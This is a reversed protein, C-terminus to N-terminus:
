QVEWAHTCNLGKKTHVLCNELLFTLRVNISHGLLVWKRGDQPKIKPKKNVRLRSVVYIYIHTHTDYRV